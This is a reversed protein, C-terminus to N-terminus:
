CRCKAALLSQSPSAALVLSDKSFPSITSSVCFLLQWKVDESKNAAVRERMAPDSSREFDRRVKFSAFIRQAGLGTVAKKASEFAATTALSSVSPSSSTLSDRLNNVLRGFYTTLLLKVGSKALTEYVSQFASTYKEAAGTVLVPEDIQVSTAGAEALKTLLEAYVAALKPALSVRDFAPDKA